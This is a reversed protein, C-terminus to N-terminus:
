LDKTASYEVVAYEQSGTCIADDQKWANDWPMFSERTLYKGDSSQLKHTKCWYRLGILVPEDPHFKKLLFEHIAITSVVAIRGQVGKFHQASADAEAHAYNFGEYINKPNHAWKYAFYSKSTPEYFPTDWVVGNQDPVGPQPQDYGARAAGMPGLLLLSLLARGLTSLKM